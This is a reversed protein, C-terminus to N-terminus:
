RSNKYYEDKLNKLYAIYESATTKNLTSVPKVEFEVGLDTLANYLHVIYTSQGSTVPDSSTSTKIERNFVDVEICKRSAIYDCLHVFQQLPTTPPQLVEKGDKDTTWYGMHTEILSNITDWTYQENDNAPNFLRRVLLPHEPVTYGGEHTMGHKCSDHLLLAGIIYDKYPVLDKYMPNSLLETAVVVTAKVHRVLGAIGLTFKPHYKNTSSAPVFWFYDPANNLAKMVVNLVVESDIHDLETSFVESVKLEFTKTM